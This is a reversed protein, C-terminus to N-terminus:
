QAGKADRGRKVFSLSECRPCAVASGDDAGDCAAVTGASGM